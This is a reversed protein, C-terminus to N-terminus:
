REAGDDPFVLGQFSPDADIIDVADMRLNAALLRIALIGLMREQESWRRPDKNAIVDLNDLYPRMGAEQRDREARLRM